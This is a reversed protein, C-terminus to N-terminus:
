FGFGLSFGFVFTKAVGPLIDGLAEGHFLAFLGVGPAAASVSLAFRLFSSTSPVEGDGSGCATTRALATKSRHHFRDHPAPKSRRRDLRHLRSSDSKPALRRM